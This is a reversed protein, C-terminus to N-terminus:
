VHICEAITESLQLEKMEVLFFFLSFEPSIIFQDANAAIGFLVRNM